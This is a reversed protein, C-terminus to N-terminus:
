CCTSSIRASTASCGAATSSSPRGTGGAPTFRHVALRVQVIRGLAGADIVDRVQLFHPDFRRNNFVTLLRGTAAAAAIMNQADAAATAMPKECLVDRGAALAAVAHGAHLHNPTAVVVLDVNPDAVLADVTAHAACGFRAQAERRRGPQDDAVAVLEFRGAQRAVAEAHISWGSRGLGAIGVRVPPMNDGPRAPPKFDVGRMQNTNEMTHKTM